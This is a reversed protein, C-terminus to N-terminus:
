ISKLDKVIEMISFLQYNVTDITSFRMEYYKNGYLKEISKSLISLLKFLSSMFPLFITKKGNSERIMKIFQNTSFYASDQPYFVGKINLKIILRVLESLNNIHLVSRINNIKPFIMSFRALKVLKLFNGKANKGYVMPIRLIATNFNQDQLKQIEIDAECKSIGYISTPCLQNVDIPVYDDIPRPAGYIEISSMFIFVKSGEKKAKKAVEIALDRNIKFYLPILKKKSSIHAIGAVHIIVDYSKFSLSNLDLKRLSIEDVIFNPEKSNLWSKISNGIYSNKGTILIRM